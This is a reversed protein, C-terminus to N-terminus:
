VVLPHPRLSRSGLAALGGQVNRGASSWSLAKRTVRAVGRPVSSGGLLGSFNSAMTQSPRVCLLLCSLLGALGMPEKVKMTRLSTMGSFFFQLSRSTLAAGPDCLACTVSAPGWGWDHSPIPIPLYPLVPLSHHGRTLLEPPLLAGQGVSFSSLKVGVARHKRGLGALYEELSSLDEVNTVATDIVLM